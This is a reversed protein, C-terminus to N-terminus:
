HVLITALNEVILAAGDSIRVPGALVRSTNALVTSNTTYIRGLDGGAASVTIDMEDNGADDVVTVTAGAGDIFNLRNRTGVDAGAKAVRVDRKHAHDARALASSAGEGNANALDGASGTLIDHVHDEAAATESAGADAAEGAQIQSPAGPSGQSAQVADGLRRLAEQIDNAVGPGWPMGVINVGGTNFRGVM